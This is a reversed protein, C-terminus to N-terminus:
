KLVGMLAKRLEKIAAIASDEALQQVRALADPLIQVPDDVDASDMRSRLWGAWEGAYREREESRQELSVGRALAALNDRRYEARRVREATSLTANPPFRSPPMRPTSREEAAYVWAGSIAHLVNRRVIGQASATM